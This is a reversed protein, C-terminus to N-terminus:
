KKTDFYRWDSGSEINETGISYCATVQWRFESGEILRPIIVITDELDTITYEWIYQSGDKREITIGYTLPSIDPITYSQINSNEGATDILGTRAVIMGFDTRNRHDAPIKKKTLNELGRYESDEWDFEVTDPLIAAHNQPTLLVPRTLGPLIQEYVRRFNQGFIKRLQVWTYGFENRLKKAVIKWREPSALFADAYHRDEPSWGDIVSDSAVGVHDVGVLNTIYVIHACFDDVNGKGDGDRDIMWSIPTVGIVGGSQAIALLENDSKNRTDPTLTWANAHNAIVPDCSIQVVDMTTKESCHSLDIIMNLRNFHQIAKRGLETLGQHPEDSGGGLKELRSQAQSDQSSYHIQVIRLGSDFWKRIPAVSGELKAHKQAYFLVGYKKVKKSKDLDNFTKIVLGGESQDRMIYDNIAVLKEFPRPITLSGVDVGTLGKILGLDISQLACDKRCDPDQKVSYNLLGDIILSDRFLEDINDDFVLGPSIHSSADKGSIGICILCLSGFFFSTLLVFSLFPSKSKKSLHSGWRINERL